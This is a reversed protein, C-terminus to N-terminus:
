KHGACDVKLELPLAGYGAVVYISELCWGLIVM